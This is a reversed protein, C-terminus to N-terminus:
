CVEIFLCIMGKELKSGDKSFTGSTAFALQAEGEPHICYGISVNHKSKESIEITTSYLFFNKVLAEPYMLGRAELNDMVM